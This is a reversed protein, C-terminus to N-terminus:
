RNVIFQGEVGGRDFLLRRSADGEPRGGAVDPSDDDDDTRGTWRTPPTTTHRAAATAASSVCYVSTTCCVVCRAYSSAAGHAASLRDGQFRHARGRRDVVAAAAAAIDATRVLSAPPKVDAGRM